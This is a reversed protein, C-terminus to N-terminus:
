TNRLLSQAGVDQQSDQRPYEWCLSLGHSFDPVKKCSVGFMWSSLGESFIWALLCPLKGCSLGTLSGSIYTHDPIPHPIAYPCDILLLSLAM